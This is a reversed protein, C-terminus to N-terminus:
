TLLDLLRRRGAREPEGIGTVIDPDAGDYVVSIEAGAAHADVIAQSWRVRWARSALAYAGGTEINRAIRDQTLMAWQPLDTTVTEPEGFQNRGAVSLRVTIRRDLSPM